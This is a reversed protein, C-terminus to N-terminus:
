FAHRVGMQIGQLAAGYGSQGVATIGYDFQGNSDNELWSYVAKLMTRKSLNYNVGVALLQAGDDAVNDSELAQYYQAILDAKGITYTGGIGWKQQKNNAGGEISTEEWMLRASWNSGTYSGGVRVNDIQTAAVDGLQAWNYTVAAMFGSGQWKIGTDYGTTRLTQAPSASVAGTATNLAYVSAANNNQDERTKNEDAVYAGVVTFGAFTPSVYAISNAWRSDFISVCTGSASCNSTGAAWGSASGLTNGGLKGILGSNAGISTVGPNVDMAAGLARTPGTLNGMVITGFKADSLGVFSDRTALTSGGGNTFDVGSEYQFVAKLGNGLDETGKFGIYSSNASVRNYDGKSRNTGVGNMGSTAGKSNIVDFSGDAIGYVTVNTQAFAATSALGAIALAILKKQM